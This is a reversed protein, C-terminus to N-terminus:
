SYDIRGPKGIGIPRYNILKPPYVFRFALFGDSFRQSCDRKRRLPATAFRNVM